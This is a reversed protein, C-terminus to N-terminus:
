AIHYVAKGKVKKAVVRESLIKMLGAVKQPTAGDLEADLACIEKTGYTEGAVMQAFVREALEHNAKQAKTLGGNGKRANRKALSAKLAELREIVEPTLDGNIANEVAVVYSMKKNAM